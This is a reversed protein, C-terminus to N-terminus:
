TSPSIHPFCSIHRLCKTLHHTSHDWAHCKSDYERCEINRCIQPKRRSVHGVSSVSRDSDTAKIIYSCVIERENYKRIHNTSSRICGYAQASLLINGRSKWARGLLWTRLGFIDISLNGWATTWSYVSYAICLAQDSSPKQYSILLRFLCSWDISYYTMLTERCSLLSGDGSRYAFTLYDSLYLNEILCQGVSSM